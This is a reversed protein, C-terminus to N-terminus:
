PRYERLAKAQKARDRTSDFLWDDEDEEAKFESTLDLDPAEYDVSLDELTEQYSAVLEELGHKEKLAELEESLTKLSENINMREIVENLEKMAKELKEKAEEWDDRREEVAELIKSEAEEKVEDLIREVEEELDPDVYRSVTEVILNELAGPHLEIFAEVEVISGFERLWRDQLTKAGLRRSPVPAPPLDYEEVIEKTLALPRIRIDLNIKEEWLFYALKQIFAPVMSRGAYDYDSIYFIRIKKEAIPHEPPVESLLRNHIFARVETTSAQGEFNLFDFGYSLRKLAERAVDRLGSKESVVAVYYPQYRASTLDRMHNRMVRKVIRKAVEDLDQEYICIEAEGIGEVEPINVDISYDIEGDWDEFPRKERNGELWGWKLWRELGVHKRDEIAHWPILGWNRADRIAGVLKSFDSDVNMYLSSAHVRRNQGWPCEIGLSV